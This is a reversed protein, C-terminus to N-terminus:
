RVSTGLSTSRYTQWAESAKPYTDALMLLTVALLLLAIVRVRGVGAVLAILASLGSVLLMAFQAPPAPLAGSVLLLGGALWVLTKATTANVAM